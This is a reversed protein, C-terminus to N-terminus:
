LEDLLAKAEILDRTDFGETFWRYLPALLNERVARRAAGRTGAQIAMRAWTTAARLEWLREGQERAVAVATRFCREAASRDDNAVHLTGELRHLEALYRIEGTSEATARADAVCVLAAATEGAAAHAEALAALIAPLAIRQGLARYADIAERMVAIGRGHDGRASLMRGRSLRGVAAIAPFDELAAAHDAAGALGEMDHLILHIFCALQAVVARDFSRELADARKAAQEVRARAQDAYGQHVLTLALYSLVGVHMDPTTPPLPVDGISVARELLRRAEDLSGAHYKVMGIVLCGGFVFPPLPIAALLHELQQAAKQARDLRAQATYAGSQAVLAQFLQVPDNSEESLQRAREYLQEIRGDALGRAPSMSPGLALCLRITRLIREPTRPLPDIIALGHELLTVAERNAGRRIARLAAEELHRAALDAEGGAEFHLALEGSVEALHGTFARELRAAIRHHLQRQRAPPVRDRLVSQYQFHNFRYVGALTGDPWESAGDASVMLGNHALRALREEVVVVEMDLAAAVLAASFRRGVLSGAELATREIDNLRDVHTAILEHLRPPVAAALAEPDGELKWEGDAATIAGDVALYDVINALFLPNGETREQLARALTDAGPLRPWRAQLFEAVATETLPTLWLDQCQAHARLDQHMNRLPHNRLTVDVPRYTGILLLRAPDRRQAVTSLLELTAQDSWHLDELVLILPAPLAAVVAAMERLMRAGTTAGLRLELAECEAAELLGPLQV